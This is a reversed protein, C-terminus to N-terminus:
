EVEVRNNRVVTLVLGRGNCGDCLAEESSFFIPKMMVGTGACMPCLQWVTEDRHLSCKSHDFWRVRGKIISESCRCGAGYAEETGLLM